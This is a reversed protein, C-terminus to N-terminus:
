LYENGEIIIFNWKISDIIDDFISRPLRRYLDVIDLNGYTRDLKTKYNDNAKFDRDTNSQYDTYNDVFEDSPSVVSPTNAQKTFSGTKQNMTVDRNTNLSGKNEMKKLLYLDKQYAFYSYNKEMAYCIDYEFHEKFIDSTDYAIDNRKYFTYVAYAVVKAYIDTNDRVLDLNNSTVFCSKVYTEFDNLSTFVELLTMRDGEM